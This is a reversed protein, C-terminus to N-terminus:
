SYEGIEFSKVLLLVRDQLAKNDVGVCGLYSRDIIGQGGADIAILGATAENVGEKVLKGLLVERPDILDDIKESMSM